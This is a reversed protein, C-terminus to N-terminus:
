PLAVWRYDVHSAGLHLVAFGGSDKTARSAVYHLPWRDPPVVGSDLSLGRSNGDADFVASTHTHGALVALMNPRTVLSKLTDRADPGVTAFLGNYIPHHLFTVTPTTDDLSDRLWALQSADPGSSESITTDHEGDDLDQGSSLGLLHLGGYWADLDLEPGIDVLHGEIGLADYDHNGTVVYVPVALRAIQAIFDGRQDALGTDAADGTFVVLDPPPDLADIADIVDTFVALSGGDGVHADSIHVVTAPDAYHDVIALASPSCDFVGAVAVCLGYLGPALDPTAVTMHCIGRDDCTGPADALAMGTSLSIAAPQCTLNPALWSVDLPEGARRIQPQGLRPHALVLALQDQPMLVQAVYAASDHLGMQELEAPAYDYPHVNGLGCSAVLALLVGRSLM